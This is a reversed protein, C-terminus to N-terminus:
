LPAASARRQLAHKRRKMLWICLIFVGCLTLVSPEPVATSSFQIDDLMNASPWNASFRLEGSQGAYPSVDVGWVTYNATNSLAMSSLRQGNFWVQISSGGSYLLSRSSTPVLGTQWVSGGGNTGYIYLGGSYSASQLLVSYNGQIPSFYPTIGHLTVAPADLASNNFSVTTNPDGYGFTLHPSWNWGPLTANTAYFGSEPNVLIATLTTNEFNLNEFTGQGRAGLASLLILCSYAAARVNRQITTRM